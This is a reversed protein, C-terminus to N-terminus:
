YELIGAWSCLNLNDELCAINTVMAVAHTVRTIALVHSSQAGETQHRLDAPNGHIGLDALYEHYPAHVCVCVCVCVCKNM